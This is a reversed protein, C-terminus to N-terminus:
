KLKVEYLAIEKNSSIERGTLFENQDLQQKYETPVLVLATKLNQKQMSEAVESVGYYLKQKGDETRELRGAAYFELSHSLGHLNLIKEKSLGDSNAQLILYKATEHDAYAKVFLLLALFVAVITASSLGFILWENRPNTHVFRRLGDGILIMTGPLAPLIYGPLKSGSFSFFVLPFILWALAFIRLRDNEIQGGGRRWNKINWFAALLFPLWPLTMLPLVWLFFYFPQPHLYKNSIFRAFHHQVFFEDIFPQGHTLYMPLYWACAVLISIPLGWFFSYIFMRSPFRLQLLFYTFIIGFPLVAGILGKALLGIGIFVYFLALYGLDGIFYEHSDEAQRSLPAYIEFYFFNILAFTVAFTLLIDFTAGRSFVILGISTALTIGAFKALGNANQSFWGNKMQMKEIRACLRFIGVVILLGCVASFFRASFESVGFVHYALIMLWYLLAPKEFWHANGLTPTLWDGREFMERAVQAYRPEDPGLFPVFNLGFFYLGVIVVAVIIWLYVPFKSSNM